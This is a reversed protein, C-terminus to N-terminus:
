RPELQSDAKAIVAAVGLLLTGKAAWDRSSGTGFNYGGILIDGERAIQQFAPDYNEMAVGAMEEPTMGEKYTYDKGYIGDTDLNDAPLFLM